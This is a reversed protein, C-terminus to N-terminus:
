RVCKAVEGNHTPIGNTAITEDPNRKSFIGKSKSRELLQKTSILCVRSTLGPNIINTNTNESLVGGAM